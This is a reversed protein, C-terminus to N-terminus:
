FALKLNELNKEMISVYNEGNKMEEASVNHLTYFIVPKANTEESIMKAVTGESLEEYYVAKINNTNIYDIIEKIKSVSPEAGDGCAEYASIVNLNYRNMFYAYAFEGGFVLTDLTTNKLENEIKKDLNSIEEKYSKANSEYYEKNDPDVQVLSECIEDIMIIANQPDLWIHGDYEYDYELESHTHEENILSHEHFFEDIEILNINKSCDVIKCNSNTMSSTISEAWPEMNKGTYVFLDSDTIDKMDRVSPEYTHPEVGADLLLEVNVKDGGIQKVFDYEPFLTAIIQIKDYNKSSNKNTNFFNVLLGVCIILIIYCIAIVFIRKKM